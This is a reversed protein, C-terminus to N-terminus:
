FTEWDEKGKGKERSEVHTMVMTCIVKRVAEWIKAVFEDDGFGSESRSAVLYM